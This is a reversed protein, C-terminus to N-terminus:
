EGPPFTVPTGNEDVTGFDQSLQNLITKQGSSIESPPFYYGSWGILFSESLASGDAPPGQVNDISYSTIKWGKEYGLTIRVEKWNSTVKQSSSEFSLGIVAIIAEGPSFSEVALGVPSFTIRPLTTSKNRELLSNISIDTQNKSVIKELAERQQVDTSVIIGAAKFAFESVGAESAPLNEIGETSLTKTIATRSILGAESDTSKEKQNDSSCSSFILTLLILTSVMVTKRFVIQEGVGLM